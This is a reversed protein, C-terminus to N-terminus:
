SVSGLTHANLSTRDCGTTKDGRARRAPCTASADHHFLDKVRKFAMSVTAGIGDGKFIVAALDAPLLQGFTHFVQSTRQIANYPRNSDTKSTADVIDHSIQRRRKTTFPLHRQREKEARRLIGM